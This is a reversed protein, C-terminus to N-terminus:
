TNEPMPNDFRCFCNSVSDINCYSTGRTFYNIHCFVTSISENGPTVKDIITVSVFGPPTFEAQGVDTDLYAVKKYRCVLTFYFFWM